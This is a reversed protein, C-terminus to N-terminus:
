NKKYDSNRATEALRYGVGPETFLMVPEAPNPELKKRLRVMYIRLYQTKTEYEPGWVARLIQQHTLVRGSHQVFLRLLVYETPTLNIPQGNLTVRRGVLDVELDGFRRVPEESQGRNARRVTARLRALFEATNFPKTVYDDAGSDLSEVKDVEGDLVSLVVVPTATWERLSRLVQIGNMDPLGLDLVIVDYRRQAAAAVGEQGTAATSVRYGNAQLAVALLRQIQTEDDIVLVSLPKQDESM